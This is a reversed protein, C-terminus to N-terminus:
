SVQVATPGESLIQNVSEVVNHDQDPDRGQMWFFKRENGERWKLVFVRDPSCSVPVFEAEGPFIILDIEPSSQGKPRWQLHTLMDEQTVVIQFFGRRPDATVTSGDRELKGAPFSVLMVPQDGLVGGNSPPSLSDEM